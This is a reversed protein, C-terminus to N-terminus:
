EASDSEPLEMIQAAPLENGAIGRISGFLGSINEQVAWIQKEREAWLKTMARKEKNLQLTMADYNEIIRKVTNVFESSTLYNYLLEMKEGKNEDASRAAAMKLLIERLVTSLSAVEHFTCVWVGDIQGFREMDKPMTETVIVAIDAKCTLQDEKLKNIWDNTFAKTRKSEYVITGCERQAANVVTQLCDAGRVGKPVPDVRDFVHTKQLLEELALEQVEGQMQTSGQEAKRKMEEALKKNDEIQKLLQMKELEFAEREKAKAKQEIEKQSELLKRRLELEMQEQQDQLKAELELLGLEKERLQKNEAKRKENEKQLADFKEKMENTAEQQLASRMAALRENLEKDILASQEEKAKLLQEQELKLKAREESLKQLNEKREEELQKRYKSELQAALTEEVDVPNNCNRCIVINM